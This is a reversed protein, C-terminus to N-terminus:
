NKGKNLLEKATKLAASGPQDGGIMKALTEQQEASSLKRIGSVTTNGEVGKFLGYHADAYAAIQPLHTITFVQTKQSLERMVKGVKMATEGSIGTDIEDFILTPTGARGAIVARIALMIRSLEGGSAIQGLLAPPTGPNTQIKLQLQDFGSVQFKYREGEFELEEGGLSIPILTPILEAGPMGVQGLITKVGATLGPLNQVRANRLALGAAVLQNVIKQKETALTHLETELATGSNVQLQLDDRLQVLADASNCHYKLKLKQYLNQKEQLTALREPDLGPQQSLAELQLASEKILALSSQIKQVLEGLTPELPAYKVLSKNLTALRTYISHDADYMETFAEGVAAEIQSSSELRKLEQELGVEEGTVLHAASLEEWQFLTLAQKQKWETFAESLALYRNSIHQYASFTNTYQDKLSQVNSWADLLNLQEKPDRLLSTDQQGHIEVLSQGIEKLLSVPIVTDQILARSKGGAGIERKLRVPEGKEVWIDLDQLQRFIDESVSSFFGEIVTKRSKDLQASSDARDGLLLGIAGILISKGAGTEGTILQLGEGFSQDLERILAFNEIRLRLLM